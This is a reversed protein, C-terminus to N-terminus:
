GLFIAHTQPSTLSYPANIASIANNKMSRNNPNAVTIPLILRITIEPFCKDPKMM